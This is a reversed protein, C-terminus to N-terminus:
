CSHARRRPPRGPAPYRVRSPLREPRLMRRGRRSSSKDTGSAVSVRPPVVFRTRMGPPLSAEASDLILSRWAILARDRDPTTMTFTRWHANCRLLFISGENSIKATPKCVDRQPQDGSSGSETRRGTASGRRVVHPPGRTRLGITFGEVEEPKLRDAQGLSARKRSCDTDDAGQERQGTGGKARGIM